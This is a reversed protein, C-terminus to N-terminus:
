QDAQLSPWVSVCEWFIKVTVLINFPTLFPCTHFKMLFVATPSLSSFFLNPLSLFFFFFYFNQSFQGLKQKKMIKCKKKIFDNQRNLFGGTKLFVLFVSSKSSWYGRIDQKLWKRSTYHCGIIQVYKLHIIQYIKVYMEKQVDIVKDLYHCHRGVGLVEKHEKM